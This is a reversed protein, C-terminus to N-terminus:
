NHADLTENVLRDALVNQARPVHSYTIKAFKLSQEQIRIQNIKERLRGEKVKFIGNLQNVVLLSDLFFDVRLDSLIKLSDIYKLAEIVGEYEAENNTGIGLYKGCSERLNGAGSNVIYACASPGPNGRSGGDTYVSLNM